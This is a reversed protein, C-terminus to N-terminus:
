SVSINMTVGEPNFYDKPMVVVSSVNSGNNQITASTCIFGQEANDIYSQIDSATIVGPRNASAIFQRFLTEADGALDEGDYGDPSIMLTFTYTSLLNNPKYFTITNGDITVTTATGANPDETTMGCGLSITSSIAQAIDSDSATGRVCLVASHPPVQVAYSENSPVMVPDAEGNNFVVASTVGDVNLLAQSVSQPFGAGRSQSLLIASRYDADDMGDRSVGFIAGINNLAGGIATKPNLFNANQANVGLINIYLMTLAEIFRGMPTTEDTSVETGFITNFASTVMTKIDSTQPIVVGNSTSYNYLSTFPNVTLASM